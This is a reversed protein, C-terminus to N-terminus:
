SSVIASEGCPPQPQNESALTTEFGQGYNQSGITLPRPLVPPSSTKGLIANTLEAATAAGKSSSRSSPQLPSPIPPLGPTEPSDDIPRSGVFSSELWLQPRRPSNSRRTSTTQATSSSTSSHSMSGPPPRPSLSRPARESCYHVIASTVEKISSHIDCGGGTNNNGSVDDISNTSSKAVLKTTAKPQETTPQSVSTHRIISTPQKTTPTPDVSTSKALLKHAPMSLALREAASLYKTTTTSGTTSGSGDLNNLSTQSRWGLYPQSRFCLSEHLM